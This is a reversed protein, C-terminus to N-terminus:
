GRWWTSRLGLASTFRAGTVTVTSRSGVIQVSTVRGGWQGNGDRAIVVLAKPTGIEPWADSLAGLTVMKTWTNASNPVAGDYPDPKAVQYPLSSAVTYGGNSASFETLALAGGYRLVRLGSATIAADSASTEYTRLLTGTSSWAAKGAYVQCATTDCIDRTDNGRARKYAAYTRAAVAQAALATKPWSAPMEAPVVSRLYSEMPVVNITSLTIANRVARLSGRYERRTGDPRILRLTGAASVFDATTASFARYRVWGSAGSYTLDLRLGTGATDRLLRWATITRGTAAHTVPLALTKGGSTVTM